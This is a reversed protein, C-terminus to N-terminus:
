DEESDFTICAGTAGSNELLRFEDMQFKLDGSEILVEAILASKKKIAEYAEMFDEAEIYYTTGEDGEHYFRGKIEFNKKAM